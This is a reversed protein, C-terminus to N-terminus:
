GDVRESLQQLLFTAHLRHDGPLVRDEALSTPSASGLVYATHWCGIEAHREDSAGSLRSRQGSIYILRDDLVVRISWFSPVMSGRTMGVARRQVRAHKYRNTASIDMDAKWQPIVGCGGTGLFDPVLVFWLAFFQLADHCRLFEIGAERTSRRHPRRHWGGHAAM